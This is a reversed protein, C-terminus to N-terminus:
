LPQSKNSRAEEKGYSTFCGARAWHVTTIVVGIVGEPLLCSTQKLQHPIGGLKEEILIKQRKKKDNEM